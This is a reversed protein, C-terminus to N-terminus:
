VRDLRFEVHNGGINAFSRGRGNGMRDALWICNTSDETRCPTFEWVSGDNLAAGYHGRSWRDVYVVRLAGPKVAHTAPTDQRAGAGVADADDTSSAFLAAVVFAIGAATKFSDLM